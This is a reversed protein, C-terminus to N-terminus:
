EIEKLRENVEKLFDDKGKVDSTPCGLFYGVESYIERDFVEEIIKIIDERNMNRKIKDM